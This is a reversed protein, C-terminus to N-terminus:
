TTVPMTTKFHVSVPPQTRPQPQSPSSRIRVMPRTGFVTQSARSRGAGRQPTAPQLAEKDKLYDSSSIDSDQEVARLWEGVIQECHALLYNGLDSLIKRNM